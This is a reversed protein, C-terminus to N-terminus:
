PVLQQFYHIPLVLELLKGFNWGSFKDQYRNNVTITFPTSTVGVKYPVPDLSLVDGTSYGYGPNSLEFTIVSGATGVTVDMSAGVGLGGKLPLGRWPSPPDIELIPQYTATYGSGPNTVTIGTIQGNNISATFSAGIGAGTGVNVTITNGNANSITLNEGSAPDTSRPYSHESANGDMDCTFTISEPMFRLSEGGKIILHNVPKNSMQSYTVGFPNPDFM